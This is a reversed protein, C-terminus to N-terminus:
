EIDPQRNASLLLGLLDWLEPALTKMKTAMDEIRFEQLQAASTNAASFHWGNEKDALDRILQAYRSKIIGHAWALTSDSTRPHKFFASLIDDSHAVLDNVTPHNSFDLHRLVSVV